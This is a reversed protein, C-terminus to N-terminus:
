IWVKSWQCMHCLYQSIFFSVQSRLISINVAYKRNCISYQLPIRQVMHLAHCRSHSVSILSSACRSEKPECCFQSPQHLPLNLQSSWKRCEPPVQLCISSCSLSLKPSNDESLAPSVICCPALWRILTATGSLRDKGIVHDGRSWFKNM